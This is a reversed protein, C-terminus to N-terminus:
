PVFNVNRKTGLYVFGYKKKKKGKKQVKKSKQFVDQKAIFDNKFITKPHLIPFDGVRRM